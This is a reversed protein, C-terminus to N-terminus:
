GSGNNTMRVEINEVDVEGSILKPLLLDRTRRLNANKEILRYCNKIMPEALNFFQKQLDIDPVIILFKRFDKLVIRPLAVGSVYGAMRAKVSPERLYLSLVYSLIQNNPRIIAISSLIVLELEKETVFIHKLYSGDKAILVDGKLPKCDNRILEEYDEKAIRRCQSIEFGWENMDKVSAMPYGDDATKPSWHSGDTIRLCVDELRKVGWGEPVMGLESEVMRVKGYGPFRFKVFWERYLAQAMEELIRLRRTNNEILDDYASLIAAIKRQTPLPPIEWESQSLVKWNARPMRTGNSSNTAFSIFTDSSIFYHLFGQDAKSKARVITIDTSCVGSFKPRVVKKFYPRLSGFLIDGKKFMKKTSQTESSIGTGLLRLTQQEIHELGIYTLSEETTPEYLDRVEEAFTSLKLKEWCHHSSENMGNGGRGCEEPESSAPM